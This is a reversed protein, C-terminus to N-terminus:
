LREKAEANPAAALAQTGVAKSKAKDGMEAYTVASYALAQFHDPKVSLVRGLEKLSDDFKGTFSLSSAYRARMDIDEPVIIKQRSTM